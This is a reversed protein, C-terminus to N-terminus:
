EYMSSRYGILEPVLSEFNYYELETMEEVSNSAVKLLSSFSNSEKHYFKRTSNLTSTSISVSLLTKQIQMCTTICM